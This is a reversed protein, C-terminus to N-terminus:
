KIRVEGWDTVAGKLRVQSMPNLVSIIDGADGDQLAKARLRVELGGNQYVVSVEQGTLVRPKRTVRQDTLITGRPIAVKAWGEKLLEPSILSASGLDSTVREEWQVADEPISSRAPIDKIAIPVQERTTIFLNVPHREIRGNISVTVWCLRSGRPIGPGEDGSISLVTGQQVASPVRRIQIEWSHVKGQLRERYHLDLFDELSATRPSIGITETSYGNQANILSLKSSVDESSVQAWNNALSGISILAIFSSKLPSM